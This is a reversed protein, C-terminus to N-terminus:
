KPLAVAHASCSFLRCVPAAGSPHPSPAYAAPAPVALSLKCTGLMLWCPIRRERAHGPRRHAGPERIKGLVILVEFIGPSTTRGTLAARLPQAVAGLKVGKREAFTRVAQETAETTWPEVRALEPEIERLLARAEPTLLGTAKDDLRVPRDALM